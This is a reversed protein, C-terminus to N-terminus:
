PKTCRLQYCRKGEITREVDFGLEVLLDRVEAESHEAHAYDPLERRHVECYVLRCEPSSLTERMGDLVSYEKGEVDIKVVTPQPVEGDRVLDDGAGVEVPVTAAMGDSKGPGDADGLHNHTSGSEVRRIVLEFEGSENSLAREEVTADLGNLRLNERIRAANAPHPEFALVDTVNTVGVVACTIYGVAAGVDFFVDDSRLDSVLDALLEDTAMAKALRVEKTTTTRFSLERGSVSVSVTPPVLRELVGSRRLARYTVGGTPYGRLREAGFILSTKDM